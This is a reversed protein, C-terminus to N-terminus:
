GDNSRDLPPLYRDYGYIDVSTYHGDPHADNFTIPVTIDATRQLFLRSIPVDDARNSSTGVLVELLQKEYVFDEGVPWGSYENESQTHAM